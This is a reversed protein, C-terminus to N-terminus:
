YPLSLGANDSTIRADDWQTIKGLYIDAPNSATLKLQGAKIQRIGGGSGIAQYNLKVGTEKHYTYAWKSYVPFPFTAGAGNLTAAARAAPARRGHRWSRDISSCFDNKEHSTEKTTQFM